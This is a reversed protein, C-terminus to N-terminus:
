EESRDPVFDDLDVGEGRQIARRAAEAEAREEPLYPEDEVPASMLRRLVPDNSAIALAVLVGAAGLAVNALIWALKRPWRSGHATERTWKEADGLPTHAVLERAAGPM